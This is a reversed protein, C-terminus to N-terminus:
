TSCPRAFPLTTMVIGTELHQGSQKHARVQRNTLGAPDGVEFTFRMGAIAPWQGESADAAHQEATSFPAPDNQRDATQVASASLVANSNRVSTAAAVDKAKGAIPHFASTRLRWFFIVLGSSPYQM